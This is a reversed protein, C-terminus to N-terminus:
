WDSTCCIGSLGLRLLTWWEARPLRPWGWGYRQWLLMVACVPMILYRAFLFGLPGLADFLQKQVTFNSGWVLVLALALLLAARQRTPDNAPLSPAPDTSM